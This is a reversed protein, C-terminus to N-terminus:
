VQVVINIDNISCTYCGGGGPRRAPHVTNVLGIVMRVMDGYTLLHLTIPWVTRLILLSLPLMSHTLQIVYNSSRAKACAPM